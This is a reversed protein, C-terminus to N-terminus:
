FHSEFDSLAQTALFEQKIILLTRWAMESVFFVRQKILANALM